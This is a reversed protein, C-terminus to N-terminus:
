RVPIPDADVPKFPALKPAGGGFIQTMTTNQYVLVARGDENKLRVVYNRRLDANSLTFNRVGKQRSTGIVSLERSKGSPVAGKELRLAPTQSEYKDDFHAEVTGFDADLVHKFDVRGYNTVEDIRVVEWPLELPSRGFTGFDTLETQSFRKPTWRADEDEEAAATAPGVVASLILLSAITWYRM